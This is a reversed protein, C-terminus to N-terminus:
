GNGGRETQPRTARQGSHEAPRSRPGNLLTGLWTYRVFGEYALLLIGTVACFVLAFKLALPLEWDRVILQAAIILPV